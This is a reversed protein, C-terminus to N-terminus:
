CKLKPLNKPNVRLRDLPPMCVRGYPAAIADCFIDACEGENSNQLDLWESPFFQSSVVLPFFPLVTAESVNSCIASTAFLAKRKTKAAFRGIERSIWRPRRAFWLPPLFHVWSLKGTSNKQGCDTNLNTWNGLRTCTYVAAEPVAPSWRRRWHVGTFFVVSHPSSSVMELDVLSKHCYSLSWHRPSPRFAVVGWRSTSDPSLKSQMAAFGRCNGGHHLCLIM